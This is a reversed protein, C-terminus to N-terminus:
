DLTWVYQVSTWSSVQKGGAMAPTFSCTGIADRAATDLGAHGSSRRVRSAVVKGARDIQFGLTVTGTHGAALDAAPYEPKDCSRFDALPPQDLEASVPPLAVAAHAYLSVSAAVMGLAPLLAGWSWLPPDPRVLRKVRLLLEGGNAALAVQPAAFQLRELESLARALTRPAGTHRAALDDAILEREARIRRSMWWVAPQYFFVIEILNQALNVVYDFRKIHAMEHALLAELLDPPMGTVLSAPVLIVPRWCGATQPSALDSVIRVSVKRAIGFGAALRAATAQLAPDTAARRSREIWLLGLGLRLAMLGACLAWLAVIWLMQAQLFATIGGASAGAGSVLADALRMQATMMASGQLRLVLESAPWLVCALLGACAVNYRLAPAGNRLVALLLATVGGIVTGQWAFHLLTWGISDIIHALTM